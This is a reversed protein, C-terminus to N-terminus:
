MSPLNCARGVERVVWTAPTWARVHVLLGDTGTSDTLLVPDGIGKLFVNGDETDIDFQAFILFGFFLLTLILMIKM